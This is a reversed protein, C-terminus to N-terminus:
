NGLHQFTRHMSGSSFLLQRVWSHIRQTVIVVQRAITVCTVSTVLWIPNYKLWIQYWWHPGSDTALYTMPGLPFGVIRGSFSWPLLVVGLSKNSYRHTLTDSLGWRFCKKYLHCNVYMGVVPLMCLIIFQFGWGVHSTQIKGKGELSLAGHPLHFLFIKGALPLLHSWPFQKGSVMPCIHLSAWLQSSM